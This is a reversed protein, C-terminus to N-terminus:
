RSPPFPKFIQELQRDVRDVRGSLEDLRHDLLDFRADLYLKLDEIRKDQQSVLQFVHQQNLWNASFISLIVGAGAIIVSLIIPNM